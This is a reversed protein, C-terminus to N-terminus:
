DLDFAEKIAALANHVKGRREPTSSNPVDHISKKQAAAM